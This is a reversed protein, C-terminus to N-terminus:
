PTLSEKSVKFMPFRSCTDKMWRVGCPCGGEFVEKGSVKDVFLCWDTSIPWHLGLRCLLHRKPKTPTM